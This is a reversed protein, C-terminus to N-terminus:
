SPRRADLYSQLIVTAAHMDIDRQAERRGVGRERLQAAAETTSLTEDWLVVEKCTRQRLREALDRFKQEAPSAHARRPLGVVITDADLENALRALTEVVDGENKVVSHPTAVIGSDSIAIGIRRGGYDISMFSM